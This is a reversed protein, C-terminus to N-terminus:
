NTIVISDYLTFVTCMYMYVGMTCMHLIVNQSQIRPPYPYLWLEYKQYETISAVHPLYLFGTGRRLLRTLYLKDRM